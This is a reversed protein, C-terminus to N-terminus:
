HDTHKRMITLAKPNGIIEELAKRTELLLAKLAGFPQVFPLAEGGDVLVSVGKDDPFTISVEVHVLKSNRFESQSKLQSVLKIVLNELADVVRESKTKGALLILTKLFDV